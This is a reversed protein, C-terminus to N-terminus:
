GRIIEILQGDASPTLQLPFGDHATLMESSELKGTVALHAAIISSLREGHELGDHVTAALRMEQGILHALGRSRIAGDDTVEFAVLCQAPFLGRDAWALVSREFLNAGIALSASPWVYGLLSPFMGGLLRGCNMWGRVVHLISEGGSLHPGLRLCLAELEGVMACDGFGVARRWEPIQDGVSTLDFTLGDLLLEAIWAGNDDSPDANASITLAPYQEVTETLAASTPCQGRPFLLFLATGDESEHSDALNPIVAGRGLCELIVCKARIM